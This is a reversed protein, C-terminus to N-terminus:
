PRAGQRSRRAPLVLGRAWEGRLRGAHGSEEPGAPGGGPYVPDRPAAAM